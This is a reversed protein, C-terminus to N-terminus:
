TYKSVFSEFKTADAPPETKVASRVTQNPSKGASGVSFGSKPKLRNVSTSSGKVLNTKSLQEKSNMSLTRNEFTENLDGTDRESTCQLEIQSDMSHELASSM